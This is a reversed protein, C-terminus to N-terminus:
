NNFATNLFSVITNKRIIAQRKNHTHIKIIKELSENFIRADDNVKDMCEIILSVQDDIYRNVSEFTYVGDNIDVTILIKSTDIDLKGLPRTVEYQYRHKYLFLESTGKFPISVTICNISSSEIKKGGVDLFIPDVKYTDVISNVVQHEAPNIIDDESLCNFSNTANCIKNSLVCENSFLVNSVM